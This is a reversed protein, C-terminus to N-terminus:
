RPPPEIAAAASEIAPVWPAVLAFLLIVFCASTTLQVAGLVPSFLPGILTTVELACAVIALGRSSTTFARFLTVTAVLHLLGSILVLGGLSIIAIAGTAAQITAVVLTFLHLDQALPRRRDRRTIQIVVFMIAVMVVDTVLVASYVVGGLVQKQEPCYTFDGEGTCRLRFADTVFPSTDVTMLAVVFVVPSLGLATLWLSRTTM